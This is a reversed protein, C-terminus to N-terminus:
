NEDDFIGKMPRILVRNKEVDTEIVFSPVAPILYEKGDDAKIHWVDNAGTESVDSIKGYRKNEDDADFVECGILEEIFYVGDDLKADARRMYLRKNRMASASEVTDIGDLKMLVINGHSRASIVKVSEKGEADYYLTKFQKLFDPSDAWPNVRMEGRVGHTGVIQGVALFEKIM